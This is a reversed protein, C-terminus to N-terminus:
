SKEVKDALHNVYNTVYDITEALMEQTKQNSDGALASELQDQLKLAVMFAMKSDTANKSVSAIEEVQSNIKEALTCIKEPDNTALQYTNNRFKVDIVTM